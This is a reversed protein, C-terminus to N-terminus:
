VKVALCMWFQARNGSRSLRKVGEPAIEKSKEQLLNPVYQGPSNMKWHWIKKGKWVIWSTRLNLISLHNAMERELPGHKTLVRWWSRDMKPPGVCYPQYKWKPAIEENNRYKNRWQYGTANQSVVSRPLENKLTMDKQRTMSDMPNETCSYQLPKGNGEGTSWFKDSSEVMVWRDQTVRWPMAWLKMSNSLATTWTILKILKRHNHNENQRGESPHPILTTRVRLSRM